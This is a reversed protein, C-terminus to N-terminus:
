VGLDSLTSSCARDKKFNELELATFDSKISQLIQRYYKVEESCVFFGNVECKNMLIDHSRKSLLVKSCLDTKFYRFFKNHFYNRMYSDQKFDYALEKVKGFYEKIAEHDKQSLDKSRILEVNNKADELSLFESYSTGYRCSTFFCLVLLSLLIKM